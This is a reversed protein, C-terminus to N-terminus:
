SVKEFRSQQLAYKDYADFQMFRMNSPYSLETIIKLSPFMQHIKQITMITRCDALYEEVTIVAESVMIVQEALSIGAKLLNDLSSIEGQMWYILPFWSIVDLFAEDPSFIISNNAIWLYEYIFKSEVM